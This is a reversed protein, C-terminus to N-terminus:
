TVSARPAGTVAVPVPSTTAMATDGRSASPSASASHVMSSLATSAISARSQGATITGM